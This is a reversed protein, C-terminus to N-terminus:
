TGGDDRVQFTFSTYPSGNADATPTFVLKSGTLDSISILQGATVAAGDDTLVGESPVTTIKVALLNNAPSDHTDSFGFDSASFTYGGDEDLTVTNDAGT